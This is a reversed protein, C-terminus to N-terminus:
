YPSQRCLYCKLTGDDQNPEAMPFFEKCRSCYLGDVPSYEAQVRTVKDITIAIARRDLYESDGNFKEIHEEKVNYCGKISYYDPVHLLYKSKNDNGIVKFDLIIDYDKEKAQIISNIRVKCFVKDNLSIKM